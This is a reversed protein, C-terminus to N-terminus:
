QRCMQLQYNYKACMVFERMGVIAFVYNSNTKYEPIYDSKKNRWAVSGQFNLNYVLGVALVHLLNRRTNVLATVLGLGPSGLLDRCM